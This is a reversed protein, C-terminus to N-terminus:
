LTHAVWTVRGAIHLEGADDLPIHEREYIPNDSILSVFRNLVEVRKVVLLGSRVLVFIAGHQLAKASLDVLLLSRDPITPYMSDGRSMIIGAELPNMGIRRLWDRRFALMETVDESAVLSGHGASASIDYRPILVFEATRGAFLSSSEFRQRKTAEHHADSRSVADGSMLWGNPVGIAACLAELTHHQVPAGELYRDVTKRSKGLIRVFIDNNGRGLVILRRICARFRDLFTYGSAEPLLEYLGEADHVNEFFDIEALSKELEKNIEFRDLSPPRGM